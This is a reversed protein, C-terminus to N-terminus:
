LDETEYDPAATDTMLAMQFNIKQLEVLIGTFVNYLDTQSMELRQDVTTSLIRTDGHADIGMILAGLHGGETYGTRHPGNMNKHAM